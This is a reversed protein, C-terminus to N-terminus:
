PIGQEESRDLEEATILARANTPALEAPEDPILAAISCVAQLAAGRRAENKDVIWTSSELAVNGRAALYMARWVADFALRVVEYQALEDRPAEKDEAQITITFLEGLTGISRPNGGPSRAPRMAGLKGSPDGPVWVVAAPAAASQRAPERWGFRMPLDTGEDRFRDAVAQYLTPLALVTM